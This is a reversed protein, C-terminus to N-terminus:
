AVSAHGSRPRPPPHPLWLRSVPPASVTRDERGPHANRHLGRPQGWIGWVVGWTMDEGTSGGAMKRISWSGFSLSMEGQRDVTAASMAKPDAQEIVVPYKGGCPALRVAEAIL